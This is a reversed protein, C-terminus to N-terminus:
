LGPITAVDTVVGELVVVDGTNTSEFDAFQQVNITSGSAQLFGYLADNQNGLFQLSLVGTGTAPCFVGLGELNGPAGRGNGTLVNDNVQVTLESSGFAAMGLGFRLSNSIANRNVRALASTDDQTDLDIGIGDVGFLTNDELVWTGAMDRVQIGTGDSNNGVECNTVQGSTQGDGDIAIGDTGVVRICDVTNGDAMVIPGSFTPRVTGQTNVLTSETGLLRQGDLLNVQGTYAGQGTLVIIDGGPGAAAVAAQATAFPAGTAASGTNDNGTRSDLFVGPGSLTVEVTVTTRSFGAGNLLEYGFTDVGAFGAPPTYTFAGADDTLTVTGGNLSTSQFNVVLPQGAVANPTDNVLVGTAAAVTLPTEFDTAYNDARAIPQQAGAGGGQGTAVFDNSSSGCGALSLGLSLLLSLSGARLRARVRPTKPKSIKM